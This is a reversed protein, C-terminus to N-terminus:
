PADGCLELVEQPSALRLQEAWEVAVPELRDHLYSLVDVRRMPHEFCRLIAEAQSRSLSSPPPIPGSESRPGGRLLSRRRGRPFPLFAGAVIM